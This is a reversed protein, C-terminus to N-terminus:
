YTPASPLWWSWEPTIKQDPLFPNDLLFHRRKDLSAQNVLQQHYTLFLAKFSGDKLAIKLGREVRDALELNKKSVFFYVYYPYYLAINPAVVMDEYQNKYKEIEIWAENIGRPFYDFRKADLMAFLLEYKAVGLVPINNSKLIAMDAWHQGFGATYRSKLQELTNIKSFSNQNSRHVLLVRYGLIGQLIPIRIPLFTAERERNTPFFAIDVKNGHQLFSSGRAQTLHEDLGVLKYNGFEKTTKSLALDLLKIRYEYRYDTQFYRVQLTEAVVFNVQSFILITILFIFPRCVSLM